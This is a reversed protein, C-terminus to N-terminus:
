QNSTIRKIIKIAGQLNQTTFDPKIKYYNDKGAYGTKVLITKLKANKGTLIDRTHDGIMFSKKLNIKYKKAAKLIMGINPKRCHCKVRYKKLNANPHHPCYYIADIKAGKRALRSILVAHIKDVEKETLWGRAIVPQNTIVIVLFGLRNIKKIAEAARPLIKLQKLDRLVDVERNITGDRDLFVAPHHSM